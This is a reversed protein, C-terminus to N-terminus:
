WGTGDEFAGRILERELAPEYCIGVVDFRVERDELGRAALYRRAARVVRRQKAANITPLPGGFEAGRTSRVEVFCLVAGEEAVIDIEGGRTRYNRELVRYGQSELFRAALEEASQGKRSSSTV